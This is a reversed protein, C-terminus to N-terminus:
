PNEGAPPKPVTVGTPSPSSPQTAGAAPLGRRAVVDMALDIPLRVIGQKPDIWAPQHLTRDEGARLDIMDQDPSAQLRPGPPPPQPGREEALPPPAPDARTELRRLGLFLWWMLLCIVVVGGALYAATWLIGRVDLDRDYAEGGAAPREAPHDTGKM